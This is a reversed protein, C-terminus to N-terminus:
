KRSVQPKHRSLDIFVSLPSRARFRRRAFRANVVAPIGSLGAAALPLALSISGTLVAEGIAAALSASTFSGSSWKILERDIDKWEDEAKMYADTLEDRFDRVLSDIKSNDPEGKLSVWLKRLYNRLSELRRDKRITLAFKPDVNNLFKFDLEQFAKTLPSWVKSTESLDNRAGLLSNWKSRLNTYPFSDSIESIRLASELSAGSRNIMLQGNIPTYGQELTLPDAQIVARLREREIAVEADSANPMYQRITKDVYDPSFALGQRLVEIAYENQINSMEDPDVDYTNNSKELARLKSFIKDKLTRDFNSPDPIITVIGEAIWPAVNMFFYVIKLTDALYIEPRMIPNCDPNMSWPDLLPSVIFIEDTYLGFRTVSKTLEIPSLTIEGLYLARLRADQTDLLEELNTMPPWLGAVFEYLRRVNGKTINRKIESWSTAVDFGFIGSIQGLLALNQQRIDLMHLPTPPSISLLERKLVLAKDM